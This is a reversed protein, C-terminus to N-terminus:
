PVVFFLLGDTGLSEYTPVANPDSISQAYLSGGIGLHAHQGLLDTGTVVPISSVLETGSVYALSLMWCAAPDCWRLTLQLDVGALTIAFTQAGSILPVEYANM